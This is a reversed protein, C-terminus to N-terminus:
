SNSTERNICETIQILMLKLAKQFLEWNCIQQVLDYNRPEMNIIIKDGWVELNDRWSKLLEESPLANELNIEVNAPNRNINIKWDLVFQMNSPDDKDAQIYCGFDKYSVRENWPQKIM